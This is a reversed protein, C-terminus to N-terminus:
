QENKLNQLTNLMKQPIAIGIKGLNEMISILETIALFATITYDFMDTVVPATIGTLHAASILIAYFVIKVPTHLAEQGTIPINMKKAYAIATIFDFSILVLIALDAQAQVTGFSFSYAVYLWAGVCKIIINSCVNGVSAVLYTLSARVSNM